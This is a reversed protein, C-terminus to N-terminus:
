EERRFGIMLAAMFSVYLLNRVGTASCNFKSAGAIEGLENGFNFGSSTNTDQEEEGTDGSGTDEELIPVIIHSAESESLSSANAPGLLCLATLLTTYM